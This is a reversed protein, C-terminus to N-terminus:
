NYKKILITHSGSHLEQIECNFIVAVALGIRAKRSSFFFYNNNRVTDQM